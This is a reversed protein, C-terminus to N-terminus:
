KINIEEVRLKASNLLAECHTKLKVGTEYYTISDELPINSNELETVIKELIEMAEEFSMEETKKINKLKLM